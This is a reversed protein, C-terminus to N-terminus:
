LSINLVHLVVQSHNVLLRLVDTVDIDEMHTGGRELVEADAVSLYWKFFQLSYIQM